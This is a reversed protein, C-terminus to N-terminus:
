VIKRRDFFRIVFSLTFSDFKVNIKAIVNFKKIATEVVVSSGLSPYEEVVRGCKVM